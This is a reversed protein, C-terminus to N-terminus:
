VVRAQEEPQFPEDANRRLFAGVVHQNEAAAPQNGAAAPQPVERRKSKFYKRMLLSTVSVIFISAAIAIGIPGTAVTLGAIVGVNAYTSIAAYTAFLGANLGFFKVMFWPMDTKKNQELEQNASRVLNAAQAHVEQLSVVNAQAPGGYHLAIMRM